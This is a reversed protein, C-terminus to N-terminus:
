DGHHIERGNRLAQSAYFFIVCRLAEERFRGVPLQIPWPLRSSSAMAVLFLVPVSGTASPTSKVWTRRLFSQHSFNSFLLGFFRVPGSGM